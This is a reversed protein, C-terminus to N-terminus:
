TIRRDVIDDIGDLESQRLIPHTLSALFEPYCVAVPYHVNSKGHIAIYLYVRERLFNIQIL